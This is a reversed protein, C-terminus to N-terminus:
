IIFCSMWISIWCAILQTGCFDISLLRSGMANRKASIWAEVPWPSSQNECHFGCWMKPVGFKSSIFFNIMIISIQPQCYPTLRWGGWFHAFVLNTLVYRGWAADRIKNSPCTFVRADKFWRVMDVHTWHWTAAFSLDSWLSITHGNPFIIGLVAQLHDEAGAPLKQGDGLEINWAPCEKSSNNTMARPKWCHHDRHRKHFLKRVHKNM